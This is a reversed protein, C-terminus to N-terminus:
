PLNRYIGYNPYNSYRRSQTIDKVRFNAIHQRWWSAWCGAPDKPCNDVIVGGGHHWIVDAVTINTLAANGYLLLKSRQEPPLDAARTMAEIIPGVAREDGVGGLLIIVQDQITPDGLKELLAAQAPPGIDLLAQMPETFNFSWSMPVAVIGAGPWRHTYLAAILQDIGDSQTIAGARLSNVAGIPAIFLLMAVAVVKM